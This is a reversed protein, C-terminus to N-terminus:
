NIDPNFEPGLKAKFLLGTLWNWGRFQLIERAIIANDMLSGISGTMGGQSEILVRLVMNAITWGAAIGAVCSFFGDLSQFSWQTLNFLLRGLFFAGIGLVVFIILMILHKHWHLMQALPGSFQVAAVAALILGAMEFIPLGMGGARMGRITQVIAVVVVIALTMWDFWHM